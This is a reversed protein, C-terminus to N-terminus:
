LLIILKILHLIKVISIREHKISFFFVFFFRCISLILFDCLQLNGKLIALEYVYVYRFKAMNVRHESILINKRKIITFRTYQKEPVVILVICMYYFHYFSIFIITEKDLTKMINDLLFMTPVTRVIPHKRFSRSVTFILCDFHLIVATKRKKEM